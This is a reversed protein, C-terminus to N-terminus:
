GYTPQYPSSPLLAQYTRYLSDLFFVDGGGAAPFNGAACGV